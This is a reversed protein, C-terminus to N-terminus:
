LDEYEGTESTPLQDLVEESAAEMGAEIAALAERESGSVSLVVGFLGGASEAVDLCLAQLRSIEDTGLQSGLGRTRYALAAIIRQALTMSEPSPREILWGEVVYMGETDVIGAQRAIELIRSREGPQVADDAWAVQVMPLLLVARWSAASIGLAHLGEIIQEENM